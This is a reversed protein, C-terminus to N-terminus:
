NLINEIIRLLELPKHVVHDPPTNWSSIDTDTYRAAICIVSVEYGNDRLLREANKGFTVDESHDGIYLFTGHNIDVGLHEICKLFGDPEPKQNKIPINDYGIVSQFCENIRYHKLVNWINESSNQSCIGMRYGSLRPIVEELGEFLDPVMKNDLQCPTWLRGAEDIRDEPIKYCEQYLERWNKYKYNAKLYNEPSLLVEPLNNDIDPYFYRLVDVTVAINKRTSDVLTGDYDWLIAKLNNM